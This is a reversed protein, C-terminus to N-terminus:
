KLFHIRNIKNAECYADITSLKIEESKDMSIGFHDLNRNYISALGSGDENTYLLQVNEADSLGFNNAIIQKFNRTTECFVEYTKKSPEFSHITAKTGFFEALTKSYKGVNGGVDFLSLSQKNSFKDNIYKLVNLEGSDKFNGGNGYNLGKL